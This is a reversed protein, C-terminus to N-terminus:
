KAQVVDHINNTKYVIEAKTKHNNLNNSRWIWQKSQM